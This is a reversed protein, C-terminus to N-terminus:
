SAWQHEATRWPFKGDQSELMIEYPGLRIVHEIVDRAERVLLPSRRRDFPEWCCIQTMARAEQLADYDEARVRGLGPLSRDILRPYIQAMYDATQVWDHHCHRASSIAVAMRPWQPDAM